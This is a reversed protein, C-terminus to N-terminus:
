GAQSIQTPTGLDDCWRVEITLREIEALTEQLFSALDPGGSATALARRVERLAELEYCLLERYRHAAEPSVPVLRRLDAKRDLTHEILHRAAYDEAAVQPARRELAPSVTVTADRMPRIRVHNLLRGLLPVM